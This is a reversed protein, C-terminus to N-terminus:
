LEAFDNRCRYLGDDPEAEHYWFMQELDDLRHPSIWQGLSFVSEVFRFPTIDDRAGSVTGPPHIDSLATYGVPLPVIWGSRTQTQWTVHGTEDGNDDREVVSHGNLRSMDLWADLATADPNDIRLEGLHEDLLDDRGVLVFGPLWQRCWRRFRRDRTEPDEPIVALEPRQNHGGPIRDGDINPLISGGALRMSAVVDAIEEAAQQRENDEALCIAGRVSIVLTVDIHARGEQVISPPTGKELKGAEERTRISPKNQPFVTDRGKNIRAVQPEFRHCVLGIGDMKIDIRGDLRRQLAHVFGTFASPAPFGWTMPSSIANANQIRLRPLILLALPEVPM